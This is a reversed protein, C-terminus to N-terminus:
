RTAQQRAVCNYNPTTKTPCYQTPTAQDAAYTRAPLLQQDSCHSLQKDIAVCDRSLAALHRGPLAPPEQDAVTHCVTRGSSLLLAQQTHPNRGCNKSDSVTEGRRVGRAHVAASLRDTNITNRRIGLLQEVRVLQKSLADNASLLQQCSRQLQEGAAVTNQRQERLGHWVADHTLQTYPPRSMRQELRTESVQQFRSTDEETAANRRLQCQVRSLEGSLDRQQCQLEDAATDLEHLRRRMATSTADHSRMLRTNIEALQDAATQRLERSRCLQRDTSYKHARAEGEWHQVSCQETPLRQSDPRLSVCASEGDTSLTRTDIDLARYMQQIDIALQQREAVLLQQQEDFNTVIQQLQQRSQKVAEVEANLLQEPKDDVVDVGTRRERVTLAELCAELQLFRLELEEQARSRSAALLRLESDLQRCNHELTDKWQRVEDIRRCLRENNDHHDWHNQVSTSNILRGADSRTSSSQRVDSSTARATRGGGTRWEDESYRQGQKHLIAAM